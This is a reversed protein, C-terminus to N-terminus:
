RLRHNYADVEVPRSKRPRSYFTFQDIPKPSDNEVLVGSISLITATQRGSTSEIDYYAFLLKLEKRKWFITKMKM